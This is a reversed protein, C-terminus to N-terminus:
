VLAPENMSLHEALGTLAISRRFLESAPDVELRVGREGAILTAAVLLGLGATSIREVGGADLTIVAEPTRRLLGLLQTRLRELAAGDLVDPLVLMGM